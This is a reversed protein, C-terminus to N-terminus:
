AAISPAQPERHDWYRRWANRADRGSLGATVRQWQAYLDASGLAAGQQKTWVPMASCQCNNHAKFGAAQASKYVPGRSALMACFACPNSGLVRAWGLAESDAQVSALVAGRAGSLALRSSAGALRIAATELAQQVQQGGKIAHLMAGPGTTDLTRTVLKSPLAPPVPPLVPLEGSVGSAERAASYYSLGAQWLGARQQGILQETMARLPPWSAKIATVDIRRWASMVAIMLIASALASASRFDIALARLAANLQAATQAAAVRQAAAIQQQLQTQQQYPTTM